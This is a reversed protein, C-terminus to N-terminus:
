VVVAPYNRLFLSQQLIIGYNWFNRFLWNRSAFVAPIINWLFELFNWLGRREDTLANKQTAPPYSSITLLALLGAQSQENPRVDEYSPRCKSAPCRNDVFLSLIRCTKPGLCVGVVFLRRVKQAAQHAGRDTQFGYVPSTDGILKQINWLYAYITLVVRYMM